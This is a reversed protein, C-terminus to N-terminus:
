QGAGAGSAASKYTNTVLEARERECKVKRSPLARLVAACLLGCWVTSSELITNQTLESSRRRPPPLVEDDESRGASAQEVELPLESQETCGWQSKQGCCLTGSKDRPKGLSRIEHKSADLFFFFVCSAEAWARM